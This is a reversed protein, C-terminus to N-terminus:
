SAIGARRRCVALIRADADPCAALAAAWRALVEREGATPTGDPITPEVWVYPPGAGPGVPQHVSLHCGAALLDDVFAEADFTGPVGAAGARVAIPIGM